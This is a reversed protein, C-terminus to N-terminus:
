FHREYGVGLHFRGSGGTTDDHTIPFGYDLRLPGLRPINLRIGIGWNDSYFPDGSNQRDFSYPDVYVNGIDYFLAFRLREIIPISYEISGFWYTSGGIPEEFRDKPGVDRYRYGRLTFQGGLYWRDFLPVRDTDSYKDVVGTRSAIELIHGEFLGRFYWGTRLELRYIDTDAGLPGGALDTRLEIRHGRNPWQVSNRTDHALTFGIESVLRDGEERLFEESVRPGTNTQIRGPGEIIRPAKYSNDIDIGVNEITYSVGAEFQYPLARTLGFRAGTQSQDYVDSLFELERHYLDISLALKRGLFWPEIFTMVYDQRRTGMQTRLRFKQGGGTFYPPNFLDFNGQTFEIFGILSDISSFGAGLVLNATDAEEVGIVLNKRNPIDTPEVRVDVTEFYDLGELKYKSVKARVMDFVEGPTVALERRIVKDRTKVNGKIDIKEIFSQDGEEIEYKIDITGTETNPLKHALIRTNGENQRTLYGKSEYFDDLAQMDNLLKRPSFVEGETMELRITKRNVSLFGKLIEDDTFIENGDIEVKGVKYRRGESVIVRVIIRSPSVPDVAIDKIEFDIYGENRYFDMLRDKDDELVEPKLKGSGTLWSLFWHRRTKIRRRLKGQKFIEAGIFQVDKIRVKPSETIEFTVTGQGLNENVSLIYEVKTEQFGAKQYKKLIAQNDSFIRREDLPEGTQSSILKLLKKDSYKRNGAFLIETLLPKGQVFYILNLADEKLDEFVRVNAFFGTECLNRIDEDVVARNLPDGAKVQINARILADSVAPPGIHQIQVSTVTPFSQSWLVHTYLLTSLLLPINFRRILQSM